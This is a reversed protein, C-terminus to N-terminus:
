ARRLLETTWPGEATWGAETILPPLLKFRALAPIICKDADERRTCLGTEVVQQSMTAVLRVTGKLGGKVQHIRSCISLLYLNILELACEVSDPMRSVAVVDRDARKKAEHHREFSGADTTNRARQYRSYMLSQKKANNLISGYTFSSSNYSGFM